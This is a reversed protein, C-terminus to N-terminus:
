VRVGECTSTSLTNFNLSENSAISFLVLNGLHIDSSLISTKEINYNHIREGCGGEGGCLKPQATHHVATALVSSHPLRSECEGDVGKGVVAEPVGEPQVHSICM